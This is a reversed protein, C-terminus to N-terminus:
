SLHMQKRFSNRLPRPIKPSPSALGPATWEQIPYALSERVSIDDDVAFVTPSTNPVLLTRGEDCFANTPTM